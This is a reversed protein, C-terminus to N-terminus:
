LVVSTIANSILERYCEIAKDYEKSSLLDIFLYMYNIETQLFHRRKEFTPKVSAISLRKEIIATFEYMLNNNTAVFLLHISEFVAQYYSHADEND